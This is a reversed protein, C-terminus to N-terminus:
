IQSITKPLIYQCPKQVKYQIFTIYINLSYVSYYFYIYQINFLLVGGKYTLINM